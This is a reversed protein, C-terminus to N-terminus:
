GYVSAGVSHERDVILEQGQPLVVLEQCVGRSFLAIGDLMAAIASCRAEMPATGESSSACPFVRAAM